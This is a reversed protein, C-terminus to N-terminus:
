QSTQMRVRLRNKREMSEFAQRYLRDGVPETNEIKDALPTIRPSRDENEAEKKALSARRNKREFLEENRTYVSSHSGQRQMIKKSRESITPKFTCENKQTQQSEEMKKEMRKRKDKLWDNLSDITRSLKKSEPNINPASRLEKMLDAEKQKKQQDIKRRIDKSFDANREYLSSTHKTALAKSQKNINPTFPLSKIKKKKIFFM